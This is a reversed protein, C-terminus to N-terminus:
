ILHVWSICLVAGCLAPALAINGKISRTVAFHLTLLSVCILSFYFWFYAIQNHPTMFLTIIILLKVDGAGLGCHRYALLSFFLAIMAYLPLVTVSGTVLTAILLILLSINPIRHWMLDFIAIFILVFGTVM